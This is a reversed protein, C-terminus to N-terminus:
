KSLQGRGASRVAGLEPFDSSSFGRGTGGPPSRSSSPAAYLSGRGYGGVVRHPEISRSSTSRESDELDSSSSHRERKVRSSNDASSRSSDGRYYEDSDRRRDRERDLDSARSRERDLDRARNRERERDRERERERDRERERERERERDRDYRSGDRDRDRRVYTLPAASITSSSGWPNRPDRRSSSSGSSATEYKMSDSLSPYEDKVKARRDYESYASSASSGPKPLGRTHSFVKSSTGDFSDYHGKPLKQMKPNTLHTVESTSVFSCNDFQASIFSSTDGLTSSCLATDANLPLHRGPKMEISLDLCCSDSIIYAWRVCKSLPCYKGNGHDEHFECSIDKTYEYVDKQIIAQAIHVSPFTKIDMGFSETARKLHFFLESMPCVLLTNEDMSGQNLIGKLINEVMRIETTETFLPPMKEQQSLFSFLKLIIEDNDKEGMADPPIPLQHDSESHIKADYAMGLPLKGPDIFMHLKDMVGDKLSYRVLGMEAPIYTGSSTVCFYAFSIFYFEQKELANNAVAADLMGSITNRIIESKQLRSKQEAEVMSLPVGQSTYKEGNERLWEKHERAMKQYPEKEENTMANWHPSAKLQVEHAGGRFNYGAAEQKKKFEMMFFYYPGKPQHKKGKRPAM